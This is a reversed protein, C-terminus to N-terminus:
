RQEKDYGFNKLLIESNRWDQKVKVWLDLYIQSGLLREIEYRATSGIKKIMDGQKGLIIPKHAKRECYIVAQIDIIDSDKRTKMSEIVVAMGHPIEEKLNKLAKERILEAVIQKEPQDTITSEDYYMPGEEFRAVIQELLVEENSGELASIPIIEAFDYLDKYQMIVKLIDERRQVMDVKNILLFVPTKVKKIMEVIYKDGPGVKGDPEVLFLVVDVENLSNEVTKIMRKSLENKPKHVGPTDLFVIQYDEKTLVCTIKNRTTQPRNSMIAIKEGILRNMLTSKGVNTRGIISVFGSKFKKNNEMKRRLFM